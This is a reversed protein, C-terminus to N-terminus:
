LVQPFCARLPHHGSVVAGPFRASWDDAVRGQLAGTGPRERGACGRLCLAARGTQVRVAQQTERHGLIKGIVLPDELCALVRVQGGCGACSTLDLKFVRKLRQAWTM